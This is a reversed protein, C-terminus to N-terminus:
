GVANGGPFTYYGVAAVCLNCQPWKLAYVVKVLM